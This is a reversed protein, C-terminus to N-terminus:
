ELAFRIGANLAHPIVSGHNQGPYLKFEIQFLETQQKLLRSAYDGTTGFQQSAATPKLVGAPGEGGQLEIEGLTMLLRKPRSLQQKLFLSTQQEIAYDNWWVSPSSAIYSDFSEPHNLLCHLVFYGGFSHGFIAEANQDISYETEIWPKIEQQIFKLFTEAQGSAPWQRGRPLPPLLQPNAPTTYDRTRDVFSIPQDIPYGIGVIVAPKLNAGRAQLRYLQTVAAFCSNGDLVILLASPQSQRNEPPEAVFMRYQHGAQSEVDVQYTGPLALPKKAKQILVSDTLKPEASHAISQLLLLLALGYMWRKQYSPM